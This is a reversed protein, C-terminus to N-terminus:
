MSILVEYESEKSNLGEPVFRALSLATWAKAESRATLEVEEVESAMHAAGRKPM